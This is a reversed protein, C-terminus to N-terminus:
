QTLFHICEKIAKDKNQKFDSEWVVLVSYGQSEAFKIKVSDKAWKDQARIKTRPNIFDSPYKSPNCHWFDGNYEIIKNNYVIDYIYQKKDSEFLTFQHIINPFLIRLENLIYKEAASVTIGKSIKLRNIRSKEEESKSNLTTQWRDQRDQWIKIGTEEGYNKICIEKSFYKQGESILDKAEEESYGRSTYYETCRKSTVRRVSTTVSSKAGSKNNNDKTNSALKQAEIEPYGRQIWYEKRIPRRSNREFDAEEITYNVGSSPNIREIWFDRSYVSKANKQKNEKSRVYSENDSWGRIIWYQKTRKSSSTTAGLKARVYSEIIKKNNELSSSLMDSLLIQYMDPHLNKIVNDLVHKCNDELSNNWRPM